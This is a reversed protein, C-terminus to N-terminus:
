INQFYRSAILNQLHMKLIVLVFEKLKTKIIEEDALEPNDLLMNISSKFNSLLENIQIQKANHDLKHLSDAIDFHFLEEVVRGIFYYVLSKLPKAPM